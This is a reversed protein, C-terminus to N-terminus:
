RKEKINLIYDFYNKIRITNNDLKSKVILLETALGLRSLEADLSIEWGLEFGKTYFTRLNHDAYEKYKVDKLFNIAYNKAKIFVINDPEFSTMPINNKQLFKFEEKAKIISDNVAKKVSNLVESNNELYYDHGDVFGKVMAIYVIDVYMAKEKFISLVIKAIQKELATITM